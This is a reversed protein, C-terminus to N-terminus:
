LESLGFLSSPLTDRNAFLLFIREEGLMACVSHFLSPLEASATFLFLASTEALRSARLAPGASDFVAYHYLARRAGTRAGGAPSRMHGLSSSQERRRTGAM